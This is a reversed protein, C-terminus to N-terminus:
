VPLSFFFGSGGAMPEYGCKGGQLEMLRQVISLGMGRAGDPRHLQDFPQFLGPRIAEPVGTGNDSIGFRYWGNEERWSLEIRPKEPTHQLANLLFNSWVMELWTEVGKVRPWTEPKVLTANKKIIRSEWRQLATGLPILMEVPEKPLPKATARAVFSIQRILRAMDDVSDFIAQTLTTSQNNEALIERLVEASTVIGGLPTRLDHGARNALTLLDGRLRANEAQLDAENKM